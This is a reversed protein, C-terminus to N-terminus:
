VSSTLTSDTTTVVSSATSDGILSGAERLKKARIPFCSGLIKERITKKTWGYVVMNLFGQIGGLVFTAWGFVEAILNFKFASFVTTLIPPAFCIFFVTIYGVTAKKVESIVRSPYQRTSMTRIFLVFCVCNFLFCVGLLPLWLYNQYPNNTADKIWCTDAWVGTQASYGFQKQSAIVAISTIPVGWSIIFYGAFRRKSKIKQLIYFINHAICSTWCISQIFFFLEIAGLYPCSIDRLKKNGFVMIGDQVLISVCTLFDSVSLCAVLDMTSTREKRKLRFWVFILLFSGVVTLACPGTRVYNALGVM